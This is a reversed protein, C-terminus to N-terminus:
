NTKYIAVYRVRMSADYGSITNQTPNGPYGGGVAVNLIIYYPSQALQVWQDFTGIMAGTVTYYPTGDLYWILSQKTWDSNRRDVKFAWTHYQGGQYTVRGNFAGNNQGKADVFHLTGQNQNSMKDTVEFIDWEGCRPWPVSDTRYNNGKTWFAPWLGAFKAPNGTFDPVWLESQFVMAGGDDCAQSTVSEIRGSSWKGNSLTPVIYLQSDGSLHVNATGSTYTELEGNANNSKAVQVWQSLNIGDGHNGDFDDSWVVHYGSLAPITALAPAWLLALTPLYSLM